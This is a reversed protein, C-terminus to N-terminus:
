DNNPLGKAAKRLDERYYYGFEHNGDEDKVVPSTIGVPINHWPFNPFNEALNNSDIYGDQKEMWNLFEEPTFESM